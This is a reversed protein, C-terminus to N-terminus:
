PITRFKLRRKRIFHEANRIMRFISNRQKINNLNLSIAMAIATSGYFTQALENMSNAEFLFCSFLAICSAVCACLIFVNKGNLSRDPQMQSPFVGVDHYFKQVSQFLEVDTPLPAAAAIM